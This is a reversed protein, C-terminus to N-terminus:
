FVFLCFCQNEVGGTMGLKWVAFQAYQLNGYGTTLSLCIEVSIFVLKSFEQDTKKKKKRATFCSQLILDVM